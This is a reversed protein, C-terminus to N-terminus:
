CKFGGWLGFSGASSGDQRCVPSTACGPCRPGPTQWCSWKGLASAPTQPHSPADNPPQKFEPKKCRSTMAPPRPPPSLSYIWTARTGSPHQYPHCGIQLVGCPQICSLSELGSSVRKGRWFSPTPICGHDMHPLFGLSPM